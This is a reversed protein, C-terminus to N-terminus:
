AHWREEVYKKLEAGQRDFLIQLRGQYAKIVDSLPDDYYTEYSVYRTWVKGKGGPGKGEVPTLINPHEAIVFGGEIYTDSRWTNMLFRSKGRPKGQLVTVAEVSEGVTPDDDGLMGAISFNMPMGVYVDRPTHTVNAPYAYVRTVFSNWLPYRDFDILTDYVFRPPARITLEACMM